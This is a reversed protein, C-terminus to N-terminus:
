KKNTWMQIELKEIIYKLEEQSDLSVIIAKSLLEERDRYNEYFNYNLGRISMNTCLEYNKNQAGGAAVSFDKSNYMYYHAPILKYNDYLKKMNIYDSSIFNTFALAADINQSSKNIFVDSGGLVVNRNSGNYIAPLKQFVMSSFLEPYSKEIKSLMMPTVILSLEKGEAFSKIAEDEGRIERNLNKTFIGRIINGIDLTKEGSVQKEININGQVLLIKLLYNLNGRSVSVLKVDGLAPLKDGLAIYDEYTNISDMNLQLTNIHNKNYVIAVPTIYWPVGYQTGDINLNDLRDGKINDIDIIDKDNLTYLAEGNNDIFERAVENSTIMIDKNELKYESTNEVTVTVMPYKKKFEEVTFNIYENDGDSCIVLNGKIVKKGTEKSNLCSTNTILLVAIFVLLIKRIGIKM